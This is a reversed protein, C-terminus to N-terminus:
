KEESPQETPQSASIEDEEESSTEFVDNFAAEFAKETDVFEPQEMPESTNVINNGIAVTAPTFDPQPVQEESLSEALQLQPTTAVIFDISDALTQAAQVVVANADVLGVSETSQAQQELDKIESLAPLEDLSKLNFYDLFTKTTAYLAPRGPVDKHGVVRVWDREQLTKVMSTSVSVGRIDEIDARTIPQRYAILAITELLARSYKAPKEELIRGVWRAHDQKVQIRYGSAVEVLEFSREAYDAQLETIAAHIVKGEVDAEGNILNALKKLSLPKGVTMLISELALKVEDITLSM